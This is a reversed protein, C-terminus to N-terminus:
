EETTDASPFKQQLTRFTEPNKEFAICNRRLKVSAEVITGAGAFPDLVTMGELSFLEVLRSAELLSKQYDHLQKERGAPQLLDPLFYPPPKRGKHYFLVLQWKDVIHGRHPYTLRNPGEFPIALPWPERDFHKSLRNMVQRVLYKGTYAVLCGKPKLVRACLNGLDDWAELDTYPPDTLVLDVSNENLVGKQFNQNYVRVWTPGQEIPRISEKERERTVTLYAGGITESGKRLKEKVSERAEKIVTLGRQYTTPSIGIRKAVIDRAQGRLENPSLTRGDTERRAALEAEIELLPESLEIKQFDNLQRRVLNAEIVFLKERLPDDFSRVNVVPEIQLEKCVTARHHGELITGCDNVDIPQYLEHNGISNKLAQYEATPLAPLLKQYAPNASLQRKPLVKSLPGTAVIRHPEVIGDELGFYKKHGCL